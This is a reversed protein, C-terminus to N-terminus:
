SDPVRDDRSAPITPLASPAGSLRWVTNRAVGSKEILGLAALHGLNRMLTPYSIAESLRPLLVLSSSPGLEALLALLERQLETLEASVRTPPVYAGAFFRVVVEGARELFEPPVLGARHTLEGIKLTGRGWKEILGRLYLM